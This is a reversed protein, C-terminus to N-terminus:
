RQAFAWYVRHCGPCRGAYCAQGTAQMRFSYLTVNIEKPFPVERSKLGCSCPIVVRPCGLPFVGIFIVPDDSAQFHAELERPFSPQDLQGVLDRYANDM